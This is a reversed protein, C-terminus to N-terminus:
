SNEDGTEGIDEKMIIYNDNSKVYIEEEDKGFDCSSDKMSRKNIEIATNKDFDCFRLIIIENYVLSMFIIIFSEIFYLISNGIQINAKFMYIFILGFSSIAGFHNVSFNFILLWISCVECFIILCLPISLYFYKVLEKFGFSKIMSKLNKDDDNCENPDNYIFNRVLNCPLFYAIVQLLISLIIGIIGDIFLFKYINGKAISLYKAGCVYMLSSLLELFIFKTLKLFYDSIVEKYIIFINIAIVLILLTIIPLYHHRYLKTNKIILKSLIAIVFLRIIISLSLLGGSANTLNEIKIIISYYTIYVFDLICVLILLCIKKLSRKKEMKGKKYHELKYQNNISSKNKLEDELPIDPSGQEIINQDINISKTDKNDIKEIKTSVFSREFVLMLICNIARGLFQLFDLYFVNKKPTSYVLIIRLFISIPVALFLFCKKTLHGFTIFM